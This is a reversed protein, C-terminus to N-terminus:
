TTPRDTLVDLEDLEIVRGRDDAFSFRGVVRVDQGVLDAVEEQPVLEVRHLDDDEIWFHRPADHTRVIGETLVVRGDYREEDAVLEALTVPEPAAAGTACAAALLALLAVVGLRAFM